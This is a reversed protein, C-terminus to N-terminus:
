SYFPISVLDFIHIENVLLMCPAFLFSLFILVNTCVRKAASLLLNVIIIFSYMQSHMTFHMICINAKLFLVHIKTRILSLAQRINFVVFLAKKKEWM